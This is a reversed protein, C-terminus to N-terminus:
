RNFISILILVGVLILLLVFVIWITIWYNNIHKAYMDFDYSDRGRVYKKLSNGAYLMGVGLIISIIHSIVNSLIGKSLEVALSAVASVLNIISTIQLAIALKEFKSITNESLKYNPQNQEDLIIHEEM